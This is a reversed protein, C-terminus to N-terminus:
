DETGGESGSLLQTQLAAHSTAIKDCRENEDVGAHGSVKHWIISHRSEELLLEQWLDRNIVETMKGHSDKHKWGNKQWSTLWGKLHADILYASDSYLEVECSRNLERLAKIAAMIEMRNNTTHAEGGGLERRAAGYLLVAGWGGPGPNGSCAGDTYITVKKM